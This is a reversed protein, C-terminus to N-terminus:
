LESNCDQPSDMFTYIITSPTSNCTAYLTGQPGLITTENTNHDTSQQYSLTPQYQQQCINNAPSVQQLASPDCSMIGHFSEPSIFLLQQQQNFSNNLNITDNDISITNLKDDLEDECDNNGFMMHTTMHNSTTTDTTAPWINNSITQIEPTEPIELHQFTENPLDFSVRSNRRQRSRLFVAVVVVVNAALIFMGVGVIIAAENLARKFMSTIKFGVSPNLPQSLQKNNSLLQHNSSQFKPKISSLEQSGNTDQQPSSPLSSAQRKKSLYSLKAFVFELENALSDHLQSRLNFILQSICTLNDRSYAFEQELKSLCVPIDALISGIQLQMSQSSALDNALALFPLINLEVLLFNNIAKTDLKIKASLNLLASPSSPLSSDINLYDFEKNLDLSYKNIVYSM